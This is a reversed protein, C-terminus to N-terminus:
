GRIAASSTPAQAVSGSFGAAVAGTVSGPLGPAVVSGTLGVGGTARTSGLLGAPEGKAASLSGFLM